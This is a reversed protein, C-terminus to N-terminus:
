NVQVRVITDLMVTNSQVALEFRTRGIEISPIKKILSM